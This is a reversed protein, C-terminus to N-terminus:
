AYRRAVTAAGNALYDLKKWGRPPHEEKTM